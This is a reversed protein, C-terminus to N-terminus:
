VTDKIESHNDIKQQLQQEDKIVQHHKIILMAGALMSILLAILLIPKFYNLQM